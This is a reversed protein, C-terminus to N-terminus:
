KSRLSSLVQDLGEMDYSHANSIIKYLGTVDGDNLGPDFYSIMPDLVMNVEKIEDCKANFITTNSNDSNFYIDTGVYRINIGFLDYEKYNQSSLDKIQATTPMVLAKNGELINNIYSEETDSFKYIPDCYATGGIGYIMNMSFVIENRSNIIEIAGLGKYTEAISDYNADIMFKSREGNTYEKISWNDPIDAKIFEFNPAAQTNTNLATNDTNLEVINGMQVGIIVGIGVTILVMLLISITVFNYRKLQPKNTDM